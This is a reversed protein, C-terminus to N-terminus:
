KIIIKSSKKNNSKNVLRVIYVGPNLNVSVRQREQLSFDLNQAHVKKGNMDYMVMKTNGLNNKASITFNGNSVTPYITLSNSAFVDNVSLGEATFQGSFVGRGYTAAFVMNDDRLDLDTVKVNNMGTDSQVWNPAADNFNATKWVGLETGIIVEEPRLPNQLITKVPIDPFDGEKDAWTSGADSSYWISVVGYNHMTVFIENENAGLEIDSVSGVFNAGTIDTWNASGSNNAGTVKLVKGNKLGIYLNTANTTYQSVKLNSPESDMLANTLNVRSITGSKINSYRRVADSSVSTYNSYLIDLNSDLAETNIFDGYYADESNITRTQGTSYDYLRITRNYIYNTIYYRDSGDQDFFSHAGDGGWVRSSSNIGSSANSFLQTGNDQAGAIFYEGTFATTPAVGVSYFQLANYGWKRGNINTGGNSSHYVGGDNAFVMNASTASSFAVEHQDAHIKQYGCCDNWQTKQSWSNGGNTSKFLNIGGVYLIDDDRPHVKILLNYGAQGRTFDNAPIDQDADNPLALTSVNAFDDITKYLGVPNTTTLQALVWITGPTLASTQIETRRANPVLHKLTFTTGDTSKFIAGGGSNRGIGRNTSAYISNDASIKINNIEYLDGSPTLPFTMKSFDTGNTSKYIGMDQSGLAVAPSGEPYYSDGVGVYVESVGNNDRVAIDNIFQVGPIINWGIGGGILTGNVGSGLAAIIADGEAMSIMVAPITISQDDGIMAIPNTTLNNVVIVALAGADQARKVKDDFNCSGRRMVAIKGNIAAPNILATCADDSPNTGDDVLALDATIPTLIGAGFGRSLVVNYDGSIGPPTNVTLIPGQDYAAPGTIGGFLHSWTAGGNTSKWVGNGNAVRASYSEGTGIYWINSDNPDIAICSISLNEDIGVQTWASNVNSINTNKWLGGSVAGAFVTEQTADNPDFIIARTRAGVNRPGREVWPNSGEGPVRQSARQEDLQKQLNFVNEKHTRGTNPNIENLFEQEFYANPPLGQAKRKQKSLNERKTFEHQKLYAAHKKRLIDIESSNINQTSYNYIFAISVITFLTLLFKKRM